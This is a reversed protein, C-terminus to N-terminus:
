STSTRLKVAEYNSAAQKARECIQKLEHLKNKKAPNRGRCVASVCLSGKVEVGFGTSMVQTRQYQVLSRSQTIRRMKISM